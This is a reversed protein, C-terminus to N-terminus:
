FKLGNEGIKFYDNIGSIDSYLQNNKADNIQRRFDIIRILSFISKQGNYWTQNPDIRIYINESQFYNIGYNSM